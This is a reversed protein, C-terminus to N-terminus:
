KPAIAFLTLINIKLYSTQALFSLAEKTLSVSECTSSIYFM